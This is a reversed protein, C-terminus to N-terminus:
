KNTSCDNRYDAILKAEKVENSTQAVKMSRTEVGSVMEQSMKDFTNVILGKGTMRNDHANEQMIRIQDKIDLKNSRNKELITNKKVFATEGSIVDAFSCDMTLAIVTGSVYISDISVGM